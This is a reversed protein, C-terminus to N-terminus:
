EQERLPIVILDIRGFVELTMAMLTQIQEESFDDLPLSLAATGLRRALARGSAHDSTAILVEAGADVLLEAVEMGTSRLHVAALLAVKDHFSVVNKVEKQLPFFLRQEGRMLASPTDESYAGKEQM